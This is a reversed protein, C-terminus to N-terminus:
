CFYDNLWYQIANNTFSYHKRNVPTDGDPIMVFRTHKIKSQIKELSCTTSCSEHEGYLLLVPQTITKISQLDVIDRKKTDLFSTGILIIGCVRDHYISGTNLAIKSSESVCCIVFRKVNMSDALEIIKNCFYKLDNETHSCVTDGCTYNSINVSFTRYRYSFFSTQKEFFYKGLTNNYLFFIPPFGHKNNYPGNESFILKNHVNMNM